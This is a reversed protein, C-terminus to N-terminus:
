NKARVEELLRKIVEIVLEPKDKQIFHGSGEAIIQRGKPSQRTLERQLEPWLVAMPAAGTIENKGQSLVILPIPRLPPAMMVQRGSEELGRFEAYIEAPLLKLAGTALWSPNCKKEGFRAICRQRQQPHSSDILVIGLVEAPYTRAYYLSYLGGLSHGVLIYPPPMGTAKLLQRLEQIIERATRIPQADKDEATAVSAVGVATSAGPAVADLVLDGATHLVDKVVSSNEFQAKNGSGEYGLRNYAFVTSFKSVAPFVDAWNQMSVGFGSEFVVIPKGEGLTAYSFQWDAVVVTRQNPLTTCAGLWLSFLVVHIHRLFVPLRSAFSFPTNQGPTTM